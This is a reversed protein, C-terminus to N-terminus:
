TDEAKRIGNIILDSQVKLFSAASGFLIILIGIGVVIFSMIPSRSGYEGLNDGFYYETTLGMGMGVLILVAGIIWWIVSYVVIKIAAGFAERWSVM